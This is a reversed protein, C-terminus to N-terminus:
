QLLLIETESGHPNLMRDVGWLHKKISFRCNSKSVDCYYILLSFTSTVLTTDASKVSTIVGCFFAENRDTNSQRWTQNSKKKDIIILNDYAWMSVLYLSTVVTFLSLVRM